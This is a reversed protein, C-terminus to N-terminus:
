RVSLGWVQGEEQSNFKWNAGGDTSRYLGGNLTGAFLVHPNSPLLALSHVVLNELGSNKQNWEKGGNETAYVGGNHTGIYVKMPNKPDVAIAYVTRHQLGNNLQNWSNGGDASCFVGDEETGVWLTKPDAPNQVITRIRRGKLGTVTWTDGGDVSRFVGEETAAFVTERQASALVDSIFPLAIGLKKEAWTNGRDTTKFVGYATAAYVVAPDIPDIDVKLVETVEWGTTIRWHAGGDTSRLVGNGCAAWITGDPGAKVFFTRIYEKWGQHQWTAGQDSSVFIGVIPNDSVNLRHKRSSLVAMYITEQALVEVDIGERLRNAAFTGQSKGNVTVDYRPADMRDFTLRVNRSVGVNDLLEVSVSPGKVEVRPIRCGDIGAGWRDRVNVYADGYRFRTLHISVVSSGTGWHLGTVGALRDGSDHAYNEATRPSTPSEFLSFMARLAAVGREFYEREGTLEYYRLLTLAFYGQRSDSWEGDTNQVGFGGLLECSLWKPSWVQQYLCLYDLIERGLEKYTSKGTLEYLSACAEAAQHISLTNQPHQGTYRDFFGLPKRSCSFFTEFDFWKREPLIETFIYKMARESADLYTQEKTQRYLEALFFAAGATEANENGFEPRAELTQPDYWSPIVGSPRQNRLLFDAFARVYRLIEDKRKPAFRIWELLWYNTWANHFMPYNKGSDIGGWGHDGIWHGGTSDHYFISPAIGNNQPALLALNLNGEAVRTLKADALQEAYLRIGYATRLSNFWVNFWNDNDAAKHLKNSWSLRYQRLLTVPQGRYEVNLAVEPLYQHWAKKVYSSFPEAQPGKARQFYPRGFTNWHFRVVQQFGRGPTAEADVFVFYGYGITDRALSRYLSDAHSYYVHRKKQWPILGFSILPMVATDVQVDAGARVRPSQEDFTRIDPVIAAFCSAEQMMLAPARFSHDGIVEDPEPRLAPTFVFDLPKYDAYKKGGPSFSYTSLLSHVRVEDEFAYTVQVHAFSEGQRLTVTKRIVEREGKAELVVQEGGDSRIVSASRFPLHLLSDDRRLAPDPRIPSGSVLVAVWENGSRAQITEEYAGEKERFLIRIRENELVIGDRGMPERGACGAVVLLALIGKIAGHRM